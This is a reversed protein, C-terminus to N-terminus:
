LKIFKKILIGKETKLKLFYTGISLKGTNIQDNKLLGADIKKGLISYIEYNKVTFDAEIKVLIFEKVPNPYLSIYNRLSLNETSLPNDTVTIKVTVFDSNGNSDTVTFVIDNEGLDAVTFNTKSLTYFDIGCNDLSGNDIDEIELIANGTADLELEFDKAKVEPVIKDDIIVKQNSTSINGNEDDFTWTITYEGQQSYTLNDATTGTIVGSCNDTVSPIDTITISCEAVVDSLVPTVPATTDEVIIKQTATASNGKQDIFIWTIIYEGQNNYTLADSTTGTIVGSCNDTTTPIDTVKVTCQGIINALVPVTPAKTDKIIVNQQATTSNGNGDDFTWTITHEGQTTYTLADTTTGTIIGSCNDIITPIDSVTVSCEALVDALVPAIPATTDQVIVKQIATTVNGNGDDFSWTITYEGQTTYIVPQTTTGTITGSCNDLTTPAAIFISCEANLDPLIVTNPATTDKVIVKQTATIVNGNGDDFSWTISHEGQITYTLADTTTGTIVGSCNDTITPINTITVACEGTIDVLVPVVPATEDKVIVKQTAISSNRNADTFVWTITYEGQESYTLPDKTAGLITAGSCGDTTTPIDTVTVSCAGVVDNLIPTTPGLTDSVIVKQTETAVNGKEDTFTWTITFEGQDTYILPDSTTGTIIGSCNDTATPLNTITVSCAGTVDSLVPTVPATTDEVIVKQTTTASNGKQDTFTWNITYEGQNNYTLADTTTGTIMGSCNDITTPIDTVTVACQGVINPLTPIIPAKTDRVIVNQITTSINGNGDDFVWNIVYTGESNYNLPDTTSGTITGACNDTTTPLSTINVECEGTLDPLAPIIPANTDKLIVKQLSQLITGDGLDFSWTITYNGEQTYNLPDTTTGIITPKCLTADIQPIAINAVECEEVIDELVPATPVFTNDVTIKQTATTANGNGDSFTWNITYTGPITYTLPNITTGTIVGKCNDTTTPLDTIIVACENTIDELVPTIPAITDKININQQVTVRNGNDDEFVWNVIHNGQTNYTLSDSTTATITGTCNDTTTPINTITVSCEDSIDNIVPIIPDTFDNIIVKQIAVSTNGNGDDFVWNIEHTGQTSYSLPDTTTGTIVGGCNDTTTPITTVTASCEDVVDPLIPITPAITDKVIVKQPATVINGKGDDFSWTITYEGQTPYGLVDTTTGTITEGCSDTTTPKTLIIANCEAVIDALVPITPPTNNSIIVRQTATSLNQSFDQFVWTVIYTGAESYSFAGTTFGTIVGDCNDIATPQQTLNVTCDSTIDPLVPVVPPTTDKIIIRQQATTSNGNGDDFTWNVLYTGQFSYSLADTTTGTIVGKCNDTTTPINAITVACEANVDALVPTVPATTDKIIVKQNSQLITGNGYDFNWVITYEGQQNYSLTDTTTATIKASCGNADAQPIDTITIGCEAVIDVLLPATPTFNNDIIVNQSANTTNGNGDDFVWNVVYTGEADYFVPDTTTATVTNVCNDTTKPVILNVSCQAQVDPLTVATPATTDTITIKQPVTLVNGNNDDFNWNVTYVGAKNYTLPDTTTGLVNGACFDFATPINTITYSCEATVDNVFAGEPPLPDDVIVKQKSQLVTGNGYDFNWTIEYEGQDPYSLPDTTTGLIEGNIYETRPPEFVFYGCDQGVDRLVPATPTASFISVKQTANNGNGNKDAFFWNVFYVGEQNYVLPSNTTGVLVEGCNDVTTPPVLTVSGIARVDDLVPSVPATFDQVTVKQPLTVSNGNGDDLTWNVTYIGAKDYFIPDTTTATIVGACNDQRKPAELTIACEATADLIGFPPLFTDKIIIKQPVTTTNGAEDTFDWNLIYEGQESYTLPDKTTGIIEGSVADTTKPIAQVDTVTVSCEATIDPLTIAVPPTKELFFSQVEQKLIPNGAADSIDSDEKIKIFISGAKTIIKSIDIRYTNNAILNVQSAIFYEQTLTGTLEFDLIGMNILPESFTIEFYESNSDQKLELNTIIPPTEDNTFTLGGQALVAVDDVDFVANDKLKITFNGEAIPLLEAEYNREDIRTLKSVVSNTTEFVDVDFDNVPNVFFVGVKKIINDQPTSNDKLISSTLGDIKAIAVNITYNEVRKEDQSLVSYIVPNTFDKQTRNVPIQKTTGLFVHGEFLARFSPTLNTIDTGKPLLFDFTDITNSSTNNASKYRTKRKARLGSFEFDNLVAQNNLQVESLMFSQFVSGVNADINFTSTQIADFVTNLSPSSSYFKFNINEGNRNAYVTLYSVYKDSSPIYTIDGVGRLEGNVFAAVKDNVGTLNKNTGFLNVSTTYTASFQYNSPNVSWNPSQSFGKTSFASIFFLVLLASIKTKM